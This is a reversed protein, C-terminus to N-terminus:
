GIEELERNRTEPLFGLVLGVCVLPALGLLAVAPGLGSGAPGHPDAFREALVGVLTPALVMGVRGVTNNSWAAASARLRTPFLEATLTACLALYGTAFFILVVLAIGMAWVSPPGMFAAATALAGLGFFLAATPRRGWADMLKGATVFGSLGLTYAVAIVLSIQGPTLGRDTLAFTTWFTLIPTYGLYMFFWLLAVVILPKRHPPALVDMWGPSDVAAARVAAYRRTETMQTRIVFVLILPALGILYMARWGLAARTVLPFLASGVIGGVGAAGQVISIGFGRKTAPLEEALIVTSIGWEAVLFVRAIFQLAVFGAVDTTVATLGTALTYGVVTWLLMARRGISDGLRVVFFAAITGIAIASAAYGTQRLTLGFDRRLYPLVLNLLVFDYGEFFTATSLLAILVIHSRELREPAESM